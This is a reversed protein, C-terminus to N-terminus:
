GATDHGRWCGIDDRCERWKMASRRGAAAGAPAVFAGHAHLVRERLVQGFGGRMAAAGREPWAGAAPVAPM